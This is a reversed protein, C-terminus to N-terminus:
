RQDGPMTDNRRGQHDFYLSYREWRTKITPTLSGLTASFRLILQDVRSEFKKEFLDVGFIQLGTLLEFVTCGFAWIDQPQSFSDKLVLEPIQLSIPIKDRLEETSIQGEVDILKPLLHGYKM